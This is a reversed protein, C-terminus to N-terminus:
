HNKAIVSEAPKGFLKDLTEREDQTVRKTLVPINIHNVIGEAISSYFLYKFGKRGHNPIVVLDASVEQIFKEIGREVNWAAIRHVHTNEPSLEAFDKMDKVVISPIDLFYGPTDVNLLHIQADFKEAIAVTEKFAELNEESVSVGHTGMIIMDMDKSKAFGAISGNPNGRILKQHVPVEFDFKEVFRDFLERGAELSELVNLYKEQQPANPDKVMKGLLISYLLYIEANGIAKAWDHAYNIAAKSCDSFDTPVLIKYM